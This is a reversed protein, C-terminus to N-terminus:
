SRQLKKPLRLARGRKKKEKEKGEMTRKRREIAEKILQILRNKTIKM